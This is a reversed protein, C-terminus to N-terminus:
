STEKEAFNADGRSALRTREEEDQRQRVKSGSTKDSTEDGSAKEAVTSERWGPRDEPRVSGAVDREDPNGVTENGRALRRKMETEDEYSSQEGLEEASWHNRKIDSM